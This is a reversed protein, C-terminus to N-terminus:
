LLLQALVRRPPKLHNSVSGGRLFLVSVVKGLFDNLEDSPESESGGDFILNSGESEVTPRFCSLLKDVFTPEPTSSGKREQLSLIGQLRLVVAAMEPRMHPMEHVCDCAIRAFDKGCKSAIQGSLRRDIIGSLRGQKICGKAWPALGREDGDESNHVAPLGCIVELLIVGFAYVDSKIRLKGSNFYSPDFYGFTGKVVTSVHTAKQNTRGTRAIGFDSIKAVFDADLLVNSSKLDRHIISLKTGSRTHLYDLGQAVGICIKLLQLWSLPAGNKHLHDELTGNPMYEYVLAMETGENCYGILSVLNSHRVTSLTEVESWLQPTLKNSTSKSRKIAVVTTPGDNLYGKFVEGFGGRGIAAENCIQIASLIEVLSFHRCRQDPLLQSTSKTENTTARLM